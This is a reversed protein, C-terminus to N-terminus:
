DPAHPRVRGDLPRNILVWLVDSLAHKPDAAKRLHALYRALEEKDPRRSLTALFLTEVRREDTLFPADAVARLLEGAAPDTQRSVWEGNMLSLAQLISVQMDTRASGGGFKALFQGRPSKAPWGQVTQAALPVPDRYGTATAMSDFLQEASLGKVNMRAFVRPDAQTPHALRSTRQYANSATIARVLFKSDFGSATYAAALDDLLEPHFPPNHPGWDDVPDVLGVGFLNAWVRNAMVRPFYPNDPRTLWDAFARRPDPSASWAPSSGDLFRAEVKTSTGVIVLERRNALEPAPKVEPELPAVGAFFAATEWAQKRTWKAFPHDHCQACELRLGLFTRGVAAAVTEPKLDNAQYFGVPSLGPAPKAKRDDTWDLYDLRATLLDRVIRDDSHGARLQERVWAEVSVGLHQTPLNTTAQPVLFARWVQATHAKHGASALLSEVLRARRDAAEEDLFRRVEAVTPIRGVLDLYARRLFETDAAQPAPVAKNEKFLAALHADIRTALAEPTRPAPDAAAARGSILLWAVLLLSRRPM